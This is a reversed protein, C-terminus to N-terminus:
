SNGQHQPQTVARQQKENGRPYTFLSILNLVGAYTHLSNISRDCMNFIVFLVYICCGLWYLCYGNTTEYNYFEAVLYGSIVNFVYAYYQRCFQVPLLITM